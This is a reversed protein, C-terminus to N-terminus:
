AVTLQELSKIHSAQRPLLKGRILQKCEVHVHGDLLAEEYETQGREEGVKLTAIATTEGLMKATGEVLKAFSGWVGSSKSPEGGM